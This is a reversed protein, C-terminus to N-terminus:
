ATTLAIDLNDFSIIVWIEERREINAVIHHDKKTSLLEYWQQSPLDNPTAEIWPYTDNEVHLVVHTTGDRVYEQKDIVTTDLTVYTVAGFLRRFDLRTERVLQESSLGGGAMNIAVSNIDRADIIAFGALYITEDPAGTGERWYIPVYWALRFVGSSVEVPYLLPMEADYLGTAPKPLKGEVIDEATIGSIYEEMSYDYFFVGQRTAKFVGALTRESAVPNVMVMAIVDETEPDVIYRTDESMEVRERSPPIIWLFGGSWYDFAAGRRFGGWENIMHEMWNEDYIQTVWSPVSPLATYDHVVNGQSDYIILGRYRRILDFGVEYRAVIYVLEDTVHDWSPYAVGYSLANESLYSRFIVNRDWWLGDGVAFEEHVIEPVAVPDTADILIFGKVYNEALVNTSGIVAIWVLKGDPTKTIHTDLVRMNSGFESMHRRAVSVALEETVLRVQTDPITRNFPLGSRQQIFSDFYYANTVRQVQTFVVGFISLLLFLIFLLAVARGSVRVRIRPGRWRRYTYSYHSKEEETREGKVVQIAHEIFAFFLRLYVMWYVFLSLPTLVVALVSFFLLGFAFTVSRPLVRLRSRTPPIPVLFVLVWVFLFALLNLSTV